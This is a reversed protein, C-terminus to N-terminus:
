LVGMCIGWEFDGHLKENLNVMYFGWEFRWERIGYVMGM